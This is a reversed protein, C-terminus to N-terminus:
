LFHWLLYRSLSDIQLLLRFSLNLLLLITSDYLIRIRNKYILIWVDDFILIVYILATIPTWLHVSHHLHTM